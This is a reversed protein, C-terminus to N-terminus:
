PWPQRIVLYGGKGEPVPQGDSDVVDAEIGSSPSPPASRAQAAHDAHAHDHARGDGDAVVHGHDPLTARGIVTRYWMWAEPNIPEGVSGLLRLASLDYKNPWEDGHRMLGRIATPATYLITM